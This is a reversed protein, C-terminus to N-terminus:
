TSQSTNASITDISEPYFNNFKKWLSFAAFFKEWGLQIEDETWQRIKPMGPQNSDFVISYCVIQKAECPIFEDCHSYAALQMAWEPYWNPGRGPKFGQTKFDPIGVRGDKM